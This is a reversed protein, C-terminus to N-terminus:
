KVQSIWQLIVQDVFALDPFIKANPELNSSFVVKTQFGQQLTSSHYTDGGGPAM